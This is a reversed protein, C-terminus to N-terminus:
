GKAVKIRKPAGGEILDFTYERNPVKDFSFSKGPLVHHKKTPYCTRAKDTACDKFEDLVITSNGANTVKYQAQTDDIKTDFRSDQPRVFFMIGYGTLVNVGASMAEKYAEREEDSLAFQDEKEPVVPVFRVRYYRERDRNGMYLLRTAQMGQSPVILRAPSAILGEPTAAGGKEALPIERTKGDAGFVIEYINVRVFATSAGGNYVRKLYTSKDGDLYDYITGVNINPGAFAAVAYLNFLAFVIFKKM